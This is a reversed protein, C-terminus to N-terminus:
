CNDLIGNERNIGKESKGQYKRKKRKGYKEL